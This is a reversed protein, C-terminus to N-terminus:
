MMSEKSNIVKWYYTERCPQNILHITETGPQIKKGTRAGGNAVAKKIQDLKQYLPSAMLLAALEEDNLPATMAYSAPMQQNTNQESSPVATQQPLAGQSAPQSGSMVPLPQMDQADAVPGSKGLGENFLDANIAEKLKTVQSDLKTFLM